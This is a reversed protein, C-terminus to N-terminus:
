SHCRFPVTTPVFLVEHDFMGTLPSAMVQTSVDFIEQGEPLEAVEFVILMTTFGKSGTLREIAAEALGTQVPVETIKM